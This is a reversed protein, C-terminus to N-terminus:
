RGGDFLVEYLWGITETLTTKVGDSSTWWRDPDYDRPALSIVGVPCTDRLVKTYVIWSRRAHTGVSVVNVGTIEIAREALLERVSVASVFTRNRFVKEAPAAILDESKMGLKKLSAEALEAYTDYGTVLSGRELPGGSAVVLAYDGREFEQVAEVLAYDPAWGEVVLINAEVPANLSLFAHTSRVSIFLILSLGLLVPITLRWTPLWLTARHFPARSLRAPNSAM